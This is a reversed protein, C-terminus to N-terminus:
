GDITGQALKKELASIYQNKADLVRRYERVKEEFQSELAHVRHEINTDDIIGVRRKSQLIGM